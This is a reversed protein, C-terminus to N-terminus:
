LKRLSLHINLEELFKQASKKDIIQNYDEFNLNVYHMADSLSINFLDKAKRMLDIRSKTSERIPSRPKPPEFKFQQM